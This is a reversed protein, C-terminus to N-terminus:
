FFFFSSNQTERKENKTIYYQLNAYRESYVEELLHEFIVRLATYEGKPYLIPLINRNDLKQYTELIADEKCGLIAYHISGREVASELIDMTRDKELSAGLFLISRSRFCKKLDRLLPSNKKYFERYQEATLIINSSNDLGQGIDGHFKYLLRPNETGIAGSLIDSHGPHGVFNLEQNNLKFAHEIVRDFNTTLIFSNFLQPVLFIAQKKLEIDDIKSESFIENIVAYFNAKGLMRELMSAADEFKKDDILKSFDDYQNTSLYKKGIGDLFDSWIPFSFASMGAGIFPIMMRINKKIKEYILHNSPAYNIIDNFESKRM